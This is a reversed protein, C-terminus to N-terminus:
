GIPDLAQAQSRPGPTYSLSALAGDIPGAKSRLTFSLM